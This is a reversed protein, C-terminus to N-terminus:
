KKPLYLTAGEDLDVNRLHGALQKKTMLVHPHINYGKVMFYKSKDNRNYLGVIVVDQNKYEKLLEHPKTDLSMTLKSAHGIIKFPMLVDDDCEQDDVVDDFVFSLDDFSSIADLPESMKLWAKPTAIILMASGLTKPPSQTTQKIIHGHGDPHAFHVVGDIITTENQRNETPGYGISTPNLKVKDWHVNASFDGKMMKDLASWAQVPTKCAIENASALPLITLTSATLLVALIKKIQTNVVARVELVTQVAQVVVAKM